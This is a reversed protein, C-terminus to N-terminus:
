APPNFVSGANQSKKFRTEHEAGHDEVESVHWPTPHPPSLVVRTEQEAAHDENIEGIQNQKNAVM